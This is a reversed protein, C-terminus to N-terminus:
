PQLSAIAPPMTFDFAPGNLPPDYRNGIWTSYHSAMITWEGQEDLASLDTISSGSVPTGQSTGQSTYFYTSKDGVALQLSCCAYWGYPERARTGSTGTPESWTSYEWRWSVRVHHRTALVSTITVKHVPDTALTQNLEAIRRVPDVPLTFDFTFPGRVERSIAIGKEPPVVISATNMTLHLKLEAPLPGSSLQSNFVLSFGTPSSLQADRWIPGGVWPYISGDAGSLHFGYAGRTPVPSPSLGAPAATPYGSCLPNPVEGPLPECMSLKDPLPQLSQVTYTLGIRNADAYVPYLTM